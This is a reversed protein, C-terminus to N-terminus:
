QARRSAVPPRATASVAVLGLRSDDGSPPGGSAPVFGSAIPQYDLGAAATGNSAVVGMIVDTASPASLSVTLNVVSTGSNGEVAAADAISVTPLSSALVYRLVVQRPSGGAGPAVQIVQNLRGNVALAAPSVTQGDITANSLVKGAFAPAVMLSQAAAGAPVTLSFSLLGTGANWSYNTITSAARAM